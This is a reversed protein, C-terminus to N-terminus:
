KRVIETTRSLISFYRRPIPDSLAFIDVAVLLYVYLNKCAHSPVSEPTNAISGGVLCM